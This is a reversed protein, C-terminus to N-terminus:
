YEFIQLLAHIIVFINSQENNHNLVITVFHTTQFLDPIIINFSM